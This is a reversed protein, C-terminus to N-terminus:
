IGLVIRALVDENREVKETVDHRYHEKKKYEPHMRTYHSSLGESQKYAKKCLPCVFTREKKHTLQHRRFQNRDNCGLYTCGPHKCKFLKGTIGLTSPHKRRVHRKWSRDAMFTNPPCGLDCMVLHKGFAKGRPFFRLSGKKRPRGRGCPLDRQVNDPVVCRHGRRCTKKCVTCHIMEANHCSFCKHGHETKVTRRVDEVVACVVCERKGKMYCTRCTGDSACGCKPCASFVGIIGDQVRLVYKGRMFKLVADDTVFSLERLMATYRPLADPLGLYQTNMEHYKGVPTWDPYYFDELFEGEEMGLSIGFNMEARVEARASVGKDTRVAHPSGMQAFNKIAKSSLSAYALDLSSLSSRAVSSPASPTPAPLPSSM